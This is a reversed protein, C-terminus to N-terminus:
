VPLSLHPALLSVNSIKDLARIEELLKKQTDLGDAQFRVEMVVEWGTPTIELNRLTSQSTHQNILNFLPEEIVEGGGNVVLVFEMHKPKGYHLYHLLMLMGGLFASSVLAVMWNMTGCGLGVSIGWFLYVMDRSDKIVTRFRIISLAGVMGLSLALNSGILLMIVGVIPPISVLTVLFSREYTLGRHSLRYILVLWLGGFFALSLTLILDLFSISVAATPTLLPTM